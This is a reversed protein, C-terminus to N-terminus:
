SGLPLELKIGLAKAIKNLVDGRAVVEAREVRAYYNVHIEAKKAVQAQTLGAKDRAEKFIKAIDEQFGM